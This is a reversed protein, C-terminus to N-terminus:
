QRRGSVCGFTRSHGDLLFVCVCDGETSKENCVRIQDFPDLFILRQVSRVMRCEVTTRFVAIRIVLGKSLGCPIGEMVRLRFCSCSPQVIIKEPVLLMFLTACARVVPDRRSGFQRPTSREGFASIASMTWFDSRLRGWPSSANQYGNSFRLKLLKDFRM